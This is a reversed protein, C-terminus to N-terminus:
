RLLTLDGKIFESTGNPYAVRIMYYYVGADQKIGKYKGDWGQRIDKTSFVVNGWRNLIMFEQVNILKRATIRFVDNLGDDNPSFANPVFVNQMIVTIRVSDTQPCGHMLSVGTVTYTIDELPTAVPDNSQTFGLYETPSWYLFPANGEVMLQVSEGMYITTDNNLLNMTFPPQISVIVDLTDQCGHPELLIAYYTTTGLGTAIPNPCSDCSLNTAPYWLFNGTGGAVWLQVPEGNCILTDEKISGAAFPWVEVHLQDTATCGANPSTVTFDINQSTTGIFIPNYGNTNQLDTSPTWSVNYNFAPNVIANIQIQEGECIEYDPLPDIVPIPDTTITFGKSVPTCTAYTGTVMYYQTGFNTPSIITNLITPDLVGNTPTWIMTIGSDVQGNIVVSNGLCIATDLNLLSFSLSDRIEITISDTIIASCGSLVYIKIFETGENLGDQFAFLDIQRMTDTFSAGFILTDQMFTYDIGNGATGQILFQVTDSYPVGLIIRRTVTLHASDCGEIIYPNIASLGTELKVDVVNSSFSGAKLFVGSDLIHDGADSIALKLHYTSCPIVESIATLVHTFGSYTVTAGGVNADFLANNPPACPSTVSGCPNATSANITNVGVPCNTGPVLAINKASNTFPGVIGPGSIFFGFVDFYTTCTFGPYEESGFVYDFKVTDGITIFDFELICRDRTQSPSALISLDPDSGSGFTPWSMLSAFGTEPGNAGVDLATTMARGSTLVIGSDMNLSSATATFVGNSVGQCDLTPNSITVGTGVLNQALTAALQNDVVNIQANMQFQLLLAFILLYNKRM